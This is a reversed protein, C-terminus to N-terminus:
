AGGFVGFEALVSLITDISCMIDSRDMADRAPDPGQTACQGTSVAVWPSM